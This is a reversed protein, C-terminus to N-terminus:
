KLVKKELENLIDNWFTYGRNVEDVWEKSEIKKLTSVIKEKNEFKYIRGSGSVSDKGIDSELVLAIYNLYIHPIKKEKPLISLYKVYVSSIDSERVEGDIERLDRDILKLRRLDEHPLSEKELEKFVSYLVQLYEIYEKRSLNGNIMRQRFEQEEVEKHLKKTKQKLKM